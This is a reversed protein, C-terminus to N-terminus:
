KDNGGKMDELAKKYELEAIIKGNGNGQKWDIKQGCFPCYKYHQIPLNHENVCQLRRNNMVPKIAVQKELAKIAMNFSTMRNNDMHSCQMLRNKAWEIERIAERETMSM